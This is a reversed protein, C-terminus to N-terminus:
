LVVWRFILLLLNDSQQLLDALRISGNTALDVSYHGQATERDTAGSARGLGAANTSDFETDGSAGGHTTVAVIAGTALDM